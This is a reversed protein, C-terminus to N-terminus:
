GKLEENYLKILTKIFIEKDKGSQKTHAQEKLFLKGEWDPGFKEEMAKSYNYSIKAHGTHHAYHCAQCLPVLNISEFRLAVSHSWHAHHHLVQAVGNCSKGKGLCLGPRLRYVKQMLKGAKTYLPTLSM